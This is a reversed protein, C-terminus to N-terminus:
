EVNGTRYTGIHHIIYEYWKTAMKMTKTNLM